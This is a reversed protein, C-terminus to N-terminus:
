LRDESIFIVKFGEEIFELVQITQQVRIKATPLPSRHTTKAQSVSKYILRLLDLYNVFLNLQVPWIPTRYLGSQKAGNIVESIQFGCNNIWM